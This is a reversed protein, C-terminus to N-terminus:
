YITMIMMYVKEKKSSKEKTLKVFLHPFSSPVMSPVNTSSKPSFVWKTNLDKSAKTVTL